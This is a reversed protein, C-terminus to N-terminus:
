GSLAGVYWDVVQQGWFLAAYTGLLMFPGFPVKTKRGEGSRLMVAIGIVAGALFAVFTAIIALPWGFWGLYIGLVGALKVDGFGM